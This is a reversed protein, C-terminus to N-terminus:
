EGKSAQQKEQPVREVPIFVDVFKDQFRLLKVDSQVGLSLKTSRTFEGLDITDTRLANVANVIEQPGFIVISSPDIRVKEFVVRYGEPSKGMFFPRVPVERTIFNYRGMMQELTQKRTIALDSDVLDFVYFWTAVALMLSFIKLWFNNAVFDFLKM